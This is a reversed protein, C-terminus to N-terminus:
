LYRGSTYQFLESDLDKMLSKPDLTNSLRPSSLPSAVAAIHNRPLSPKLLSHLSRRPCLSSSVRAALLRLPLPKSYWLCFM